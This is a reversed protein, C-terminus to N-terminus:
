NVIKILDLRCGFGGVLVIKKQEHYIMDNLSRNYSTFQDIKEVTWSELSM